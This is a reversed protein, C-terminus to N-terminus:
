LRPWPEFNPGLLQQLARNPEEYRRELSSRLEQAMPPADGTEAANVVGLGVALAPLRDVDLFSYLRDAVEQPWAAVDETRLILIQRRPFHRLFPALHEAYLGRSFYAYPRAYRLRPPLTRERQEELALARDFTETELNNQRTWLYNSYARDVPNRLMFILRAAPLDRGIREAAALSELYNTSKEGLVHGTPLPAFWRDSYAALGQQYLEDVLFFKPEPRIPRAMAIRPHRDALAYLWSTGARPAGAIIFDPLTLNRSGRKEQM